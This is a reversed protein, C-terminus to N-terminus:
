EGAIITIVDTNALDGVGGNLTILVDGNAITFTDTYDFLMAGTASRANVIFNNVTFPFAIRVIGATIMAATITLTTKGEAVAGGIRGALTNMNVAGCDIVYNTAAEVVAINPDAAIVNGQPADASRVRLVTASIKDWFLNETGSAVAAALLNDLTAEAAGIVVNINAGVGDFEYIDAGITITEAAVPIGSQIIQFVAVSGDNEVLEGLADDIGGLHAALHDVHGGEPVTVDPSYHIPTMDIDIRDGDVEDAGGRIHRSAHTGATTTTTNVETVIDNLVDELTDAGSSSKNGNTINSGGNFHGSPIATLTM